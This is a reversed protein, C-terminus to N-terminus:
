GEISADEGIEGNEIANAFANSEINEIAVSESEGSAIAEDISDGSISLLCRRGASDQMAITYDATKSM